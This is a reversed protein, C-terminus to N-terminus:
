RRWASERSSSAGGGGFWVPRVFPRRAARSSLISPKSAYVVMGLAPAAHVVCYTWAATCVAASATLVVASVTRLCGIRLGNADLLLLLPEPLLLVRCPRSEPSSSGSCTVGANRSEATFPPTVLRPM